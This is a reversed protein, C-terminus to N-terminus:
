ANYDSRYSDKFMACSNPKGDLDLIGDLIHEMTFRWLHSKSPYKDLLSRKKTCILSENLHRNQILNLYFRLSNFFMEYSNEDLPKYKDLFHQEDIWETEARRRIRAFNRRGNMPTFM